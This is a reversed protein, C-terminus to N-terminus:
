RRGLSASRTAPQVQGALKSHLREFDKPRIDSVARSAGFEDILVACVRHYDSFTRPSRIGNEADSRKSALFQNVLARITLADRDTRPTRGAYLDDQQDLFLEM